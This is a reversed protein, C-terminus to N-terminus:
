WTFKHERKIRTNNRYSSCLNPVIPEAWSFYPDGIIKQLILNVARHEMNSQIREKQFNPLYFHSFGNEYDIIESIYTNSMRSKFAYFYYDKYIHSYFGTFILYDKKCIVIRYKTGSVLKTFRTGPVLETVERFEM